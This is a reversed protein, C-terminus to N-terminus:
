GNTIVGSRRADGEFVRTHQISGIGTETDEFGDLMSLYKITTELRLPTFVFLQCQWKYKCWQAKFGGELVRTHQISEFVCLYSNFGDLM